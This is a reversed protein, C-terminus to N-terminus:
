KKEEKKIFKFAGLIKNVNEMDEKGLSTSIIFEYVSDGKACVYHYYSSNEGSPPVGSKRYQDTYTFRVASIGGLTVDKQDIADFTEQLVRKRQYAFSQSSYGRSNGFMYLNAHTKKDSIGIQFGTGQGDSVFNWTASPKTMEVGLESSTFLNGKIIGPPPLKVSEFFKQWKSELTAADGALDLFDKPQTRKRAALEVFKDFIKKNSSGGHLMYYVLSWAYVRASSWSGSEGAMFKYRQYGILDSIRIHSGKGVQDRILTVLDRPPPPGVKIRGKDDIEALEFYSIIGETLWVPAMYINIFILDEYQRAAEKLLVTETSQNKKKFGHYVSIRKKECDYEGGTGAAKDEFQEYEKDTAYIYVDLKSKDRREGRIVKEFEDYADELLRSYRKLVRPDVNSTINYHTTKKTKRDSWERHKEVYEEGEEGPSDESGDATGSEGSESEDEKEAEEAARAAELEAKKEPTVLKGDYEVLGRDLYKQKQEPAIWKGAYRLYGLEKRAGKHDPNYRLAEKFERVANADQGNEKCWMGLKYHGEADRPKIKARREQYGEAAEEKEIKDIRSREIKQLGYKTQIHVEKETERVIRGTLKGGSKLHIIEGSVTLSLAIVAAFALLIRKLGFM